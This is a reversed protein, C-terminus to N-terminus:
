LSRSSSCEVFVWGREGWLWASSSINLCVDPKILPFSTHFPGNVSIVMLYAAALINGLATAPGQAQPSPVAASPASSGLKFTHIFASATHTALALATLHLRWFSDHVSICM